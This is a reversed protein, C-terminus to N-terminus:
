MLLLHVLVVGLIYIHVTLNQKILSLGSSITLTTELKYDGIFGPVWAYLNYDGTRINSIYFNGFEDAQSWFQYGQLLVTVDSSAIYRVTSYLNNFLIYSNESNNKGQMRKAM